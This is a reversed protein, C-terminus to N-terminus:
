RLLALVEADDLQGFDRFYEGVARFGSPQRPCVVLDAVATLDGCASTSGVPAAAVVLGAGAGRVAAVAARMTAGTALGDDVVIVARDTVSPTAGFLAVRAWLQGTEVAVTSALQESTLGLRRVLADNLVQVVRNEIAAIAGVALEPQGPAGLKRVVLVALEASLAAAVPVAVPVGGRPLALVLPRDLGRDRDAVM